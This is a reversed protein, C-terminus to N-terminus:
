NGTLNDSADFADLIRQHRTEVLKRDGPHTIVYLRKEEIARIM